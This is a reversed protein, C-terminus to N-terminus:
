KINRLPPPIFSFHHTDIDSKAFSNVMEILEEITYSYGYNNNLQLLEIIAKKIAVETEHRTSTVLYRVRPNPDFLAHFVAKAVDVAEPADYKPSDRMNQKGMVMETHYLNDVELIYKEIQLDNGKGINSKYDGPEIISTHIHFKHLEFSLSDAYAELAHKTMSYTGSAYGTFFGAVSGIIVIRGQSKILDPICAQTLTHIAFVNVDFVHKMEEIPTYYMFQPTNTIGANNVLGVLIFNNSELYNKFNKIDKQSTVDLLLPHVHKMEKFTSFTEKRKVGAIVDKSSDNLLKTIQFGIGSNAGTVLIVEKKM